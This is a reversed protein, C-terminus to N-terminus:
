CTEVWKKLLTSGWPGSLEPHFQCCLFSGREVAAVFADGHNSTASAFGDPTETIRYSNAFYAYGKQLLECGESASILNWGFQPICVGPSFREVRFPFLGLGEVGPSEESEQCLLHLGLCVALLPKGDLARQRLSDVLGSSRLLDMGAGFSGVGPLVVREAKAIASPASVLEAQLGLRHFAAVLSATNAIGTQVIALNM